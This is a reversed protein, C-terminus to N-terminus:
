EQNRIRELLDKADKQIITRMVDLSQTRLFKGLKKHEAVAMEKDGLGLYTLGLAYHTASSDIGLAVVQDYANLAKRYAGTKRHLAGVHHYAAYIYYRAYPYRSQTEPSAFDANHPIVRQFVEMAEADRGLREYIEALSFESERDSPDLMVAREYANAATEYDRLRFYASAMRAYAGAYDPKLQIAKKYLEIAKGYHQERDAKSWNFYTNGCWSPAQYWLGLGSYAEAYDPKLEIAKEFAAKQRRERSNFALRAWVAGHKRPIQTRGRKRRASRLRITLIGGKVM